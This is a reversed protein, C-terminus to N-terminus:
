KTKDNKDKKNPIYKNLFKLHRKRDKKDRICNNIIKIFDDRTKSNKLWGRLRKEMLKIMSPHTYYENAAM